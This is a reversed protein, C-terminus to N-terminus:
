RAAARGCGGRPALLDRMANAYERQNLRRLPVRGPAPTTQAADLRTELFSMLSNVTRQDPRDKASPPPMSGARLKRVATEWVKADKGIDDFSMADFAVGGAWDTTNHCGFCYRQSRAGSSSRTRTSRRGASAADAAAFALATLWSTCRVGRCASGRTQGRIRPHM